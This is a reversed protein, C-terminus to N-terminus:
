FVLVLRELVTKTQSEWSDRAMQHESVKTVLVARAVTWCICSSMLVLLAASMKIFSSRVSTLLFQLRFFLSPSFQPNRITRGTLSNFM